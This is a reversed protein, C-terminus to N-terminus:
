ERTCSLKSFNISRPKMRITNPIMAANNTNPIMATDYKILENTKLHSTVVNSFYATRINYNQLFGIAVSLM